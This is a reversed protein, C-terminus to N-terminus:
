SCLGVYASQGPCMKVCLSTGKKFPTSPVSIYPIEVCGSAAGTNSYDPLHKPCLPDQVQAMSHNTPHIKYKLDCGESEQIWFSMGDAGYWYESKQKIADRVLNCTNFTSGDDCNFIECMGKKEYTCTSGPALTIATQGASAAAGQKPTAPKAAKTASPKKKQSSVSVSYASSAHVAASSSRTAALVPAGVTATTVVVTLLAFYRLHPM